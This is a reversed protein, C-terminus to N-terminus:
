DGRRAVPCSFVVSGSEDCVKLIWGESDQILESDEEYIKRLANMVASRLQEPKDLRLGEDDPIVERGNGLHFYYRLKTDGRKSSTKPEQPAPRLVVM